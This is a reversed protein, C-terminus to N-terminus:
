REVVRLFFVVGFHRELGEGGVEEEERRRRGVVAVGGEDGGLVVLPTPHGASEHIVRSRGVSNTRLYRGEETAVARRAQGPRGGYVFSM